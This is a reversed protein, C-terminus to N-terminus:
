PQKGALAPVVFSARVACGSRDAGPPRANERGLAIIAKAGRLDDARSAASMIKRADNVSWRRRILPFTGRHIRIIAQKEDAREGREQAASGGPGRGVPFFVRSDIQRGQFTPVDYQALIGQRALPVRGVLELTQEGFARAAFQRDRCGKGFAVPVGRSFMNSFM